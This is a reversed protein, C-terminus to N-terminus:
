RAERSGAHWVVFLLLCAYYYQLVLVYAYSVVLGFNEIYYKTQMYETRLSAFPDPVKFSSSIDPRDADSEHLQTEVLKKVDEVTYAVMQQLQGVAFDLASQTIQYREKLTLLFLAASKETRNATQLPMGQISHMQEEEFVTELMRPEHVRRVVPLM